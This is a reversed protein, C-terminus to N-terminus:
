YGIILLLLFSYPFSHIIHIVSDNKLVASILVVNYILYVKIFYIKFFIETRLTGQQFGERFIM